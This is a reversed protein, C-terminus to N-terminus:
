QSCGEAEQGCTSTEFVRVISAGGDIDLECFAADIERNSEFAIVELGEEKRVYLYPFGFSQLGLAFEPDFIEIVEM